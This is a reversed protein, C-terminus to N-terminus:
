QSDTKRSSRNKYLEDRVARIVKETYNFPLVDKAALTPYRLQCSALNGYFETPLGDAWDVTVCTREGANELRVEFTKPEDQFPCNVCYNIQVAVKASALNM